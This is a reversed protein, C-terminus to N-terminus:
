NTSFTTGIMTGNSDTVEKNVHPTFTHDGTDLSSGVFYTTHPATPKLLPIVGGKGNYEPFFMTAGLARVPKGQALEYVVLWTPVSVSADKVVVADGADQGLVVIDDTTAISNSITAGSANGSTTTTVTTRTGTSTSTSSLGPTSSQNAASWALVILGGVVVGAAFIWISRMTASTDTKARMPASSASVPKSPSVPTPAVAPKSAILPSVASARQNNQPTPTSWSLGGKSGGRNDSPNM